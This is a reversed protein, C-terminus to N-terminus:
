RTERMWEKDQADCAASHTCAGPPCTPPVSYILYALIADEDAGMAAIKKSMGVLEDHDTHRFTSM